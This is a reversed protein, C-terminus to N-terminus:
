NLGVVFYIISGFIIPVIIAAPLEALFRGLYYPGVSYINNGTERLFIPREYPFVLIVYQVAIFGIAVCCFFLVGNRNRM